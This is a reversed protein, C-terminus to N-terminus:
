AKVVVVPCESHHRVRDAVSDRHSEGARSGMVILDAHLQRSAALIADLPPKHMLHCDSALGAASIEVVLESLFQEVELHLLRTRWQATPCAAEPTELETACAHLLYVRARTQRGLFIAHKVAKRTATTFDVPVLIRRPGEAAEQIM